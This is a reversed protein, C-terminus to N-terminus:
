ITSSPSCVSAVYMEKLKTLGFSSAAPIGSDTDASGAPGTGTGAMGTTTGVLSPQGPISPGTPKGKVPTERPYGPPGPEPGPEFGLSFSFKQFIGLIVQSAVVRACFSSQAICSRSASYSLQYLTQTVLPSGSPELEPPGPEFGPSFSFKQFM